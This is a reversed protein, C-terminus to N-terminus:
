LMARTSMIAVSSGSATVVIQSDSQGGVQAVAVGALTVSAVSVGGGLLQTGTITVLTGAQGASPFVSTVVGVANYRWGNELTVTAGSSGVLGVHATGQGGPGARLIVTTDSESVVESAVGVLSGSVVQGSGGRLGVGSVNVCTGEQGASPQVSNILGPVLYSWRSTASVVASTDAYLTVTGAVSSANSAGAVVTVFTNNSRLDVMRRCM